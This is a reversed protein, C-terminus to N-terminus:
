VIARIAERGDLTKKPVVVILATFCEGSPLSGSARLVAAGDELTQRSTEKFAAPRAEPALEEANVMKLMQSFAAGQVASGLGFVDRLGM